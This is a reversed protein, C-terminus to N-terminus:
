LVYKSIIYICLLVAVALALIFIVEKFKIKM